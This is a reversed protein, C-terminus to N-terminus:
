ENGDHTLAGHTFFLDNPECNITIVTHEYEHAELVTIPAWGAAEYNWLQDTPLLDSAKKMLIEEDRKILIIHNPSFVDENLSIIQASPHTNV